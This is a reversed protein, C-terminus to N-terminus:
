ARTGGESDLARRVASALGLLSLPKSVLDMIGIERVNEPTWRGGFGSVLVV